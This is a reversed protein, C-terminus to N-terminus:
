QGNGAANGASNADATAAAEAANSVADAQNALADAANGTANDAVDEITGAAAELTNAESGGGTNNAATDGAGGCGALAFTAALAATKLITKM